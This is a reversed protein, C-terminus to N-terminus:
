DIVINHVMEKADQKPKKQAELLNRVYGEAFRGSIPQNSCKVGFMIEFNQQKTVKTAAFTCCIKSIHLNKLLFRMSEQMKVAFEVIEFIM